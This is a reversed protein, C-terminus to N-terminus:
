PILLGTISFLVFSIRSPVELALAEPDKGGHADLAEAIDLLVDAGDDAVPEVGVAGGQAQRKYVDQHPFHHGLEPEWM